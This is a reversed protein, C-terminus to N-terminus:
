ELIESDTAPTFGSSSDSVVKQGFTRALENLQEDSIKQEFQEKPKGYVRNILTEISILDGKQLSKKMASAITKELITARPNDYVGKLEEIEMSLMAQITDNIESLRYGQERLLSVYKRPRGKPNGSQGKIYPTLYKTNEGSM